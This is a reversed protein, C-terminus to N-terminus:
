FKSKFCSHDSLLSAIVRYKDMGPQVTPCYLIALLRKDYTSIAPISTPTVPLEAYYAQKESATGLTWIARQGDRDPILESVNLTANWDGLV